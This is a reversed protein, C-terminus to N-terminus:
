NGRMSAVLYEFEDNSGAIRDHVMKEIVDSKGGSNFCHSVVQRALTKTPPTLNSNDIVKKLASEEEEREGTRDQGTSANSVRKDCTVITNTKRYKAAREAGDKRKGYAKNLISECKKSRLKGNKAKFFAVVANRVVVWEAVSCNCISALARDNDPLPTENSYYHDLLLNYAGHEALTLHWTDEKYDTPRREYWEM